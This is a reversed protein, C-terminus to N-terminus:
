ISKLLCILEETYSTNLTKEASSRASDGMELYKDKNESYYIMANILEDQSNVILGNEAHIVIDCTAVPTTIVPFGYGMYEIVSRPCGESLSNLIGVFNYFPYLENINKRGLFRVNNFPGYKKIFMVIDNSLEGVIYLSMNTINADRWALLLNQTGKVFSHKATCVFAYEKDSSFENNITKNLGLNIVKLKEENVGNRIFSKKSEESLVVIIDSLEIAKIAESISFNSTYIYESEIGYKKYESKLRDCTDTPHMEGFELVIIKGAERCKRVISLPRPKVYVIESIDKAIANKFCVGTIIEGFLYGYYDKFFPFNSIRDVLRAAILPIPSLILNENTNKDFRKIGYGKVFANEKELRPVLKELQESKWGPPTFTSYFAISVTKM